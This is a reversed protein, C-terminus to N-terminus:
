GNRGILLDVFDRELLIVYNTKAERDGVWAVPTLGEPGNRVAQTMIKDLWVPLEKWYKCEVSLWLNVVDPPKQCNTQIFKGQIKVAKSRGVVVGKILRAVRREYNKGRWRAQKRQPVEISM